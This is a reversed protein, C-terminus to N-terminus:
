SPFGLLEEFVELRNLLLLHGVNPRHHETPFTFAGLGFISSHYAVLKKIGDSGVIDSISRQQPYNDPERAGPQSPVAGIPM